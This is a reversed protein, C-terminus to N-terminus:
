RFMRSDWCHKSLRIVWRNGAPPPECSRVQRLCEQSQCVHSAAASELVHLFDINLCAKRCFSTSSAVASCSQVTSLIWVMRILLEWKVRPNREEFPRKLSNWNIIANKENGYSYMTLWTNTEPLHLRFAYLLFIVLSRVNREVWFVDNLSSNFSIGATQEVLVM